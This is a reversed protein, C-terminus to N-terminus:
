PSTPWIITVPYGPQQPVDRLEQRYVAWAEVQEPTLPGNPIQTWDSSFLLNNRQALATVTIVPINLVWQMQGYDFIYDGYPKEPLNTVQNNVVYQTAPNAVAELIFEGPQAQLAFDQDQCSGLKTIKGLGNYIIFNKM